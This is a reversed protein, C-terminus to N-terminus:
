ALLRPSLRTLIGGAASAPLRVAIGQRSPLRSPIPRGVALYFRHRAHDPVLSLYIIRVRRFRALPNPFRGLTVSLLFYGRLTDVRWDQGMLM